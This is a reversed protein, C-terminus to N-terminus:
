KSARKFGLYDPLNKECWDRYETMTKFARGQANKPPPNIPRSFGYKLRLELPRAMQRRCQERFEAWGEDEPTRLAYSEAPTTFGYAVATENMTNAAKDGCKDSKDKM